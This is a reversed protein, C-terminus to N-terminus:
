IWGNLEFIEEFIETFTPPKSSIIKNGLHKHKIFALHPKHVANDYRFVLRNAADQYHYVYMLKKVREEDADLFEKIHLSSKDSFYITGKFYGQDGPRIDFNLQTDIVSPTASYREILQKVENFYKQIIM